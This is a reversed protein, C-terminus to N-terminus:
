PAVAITASGTSAAWAVAPADTEPVAVHVVDDVVDVVVGSDSVSRGEALVHVSDGVATITPEYSRIAITLTGQAAVGAGESAVDVATLVEGAAIPQRAIADADVQRLATAPVAAVPLEIEEYEIPEGADHHRVAALIVQTERWARRAHDADTTAGRVSVGVVCALSVVLLWYAWRHTSLFRRIAYGM